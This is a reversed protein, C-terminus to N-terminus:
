KSDIQNYIKSMIALNDPPPLEKFVNTAGDFFLGVRINSRGLRNKLVILSRFKDGLIDINYGDFQTIGYREPAFLAIVILADRSTLRNDGLGSLTPLLKEVVNEGRYNFEKRETEAGQQQVNVVIYKFFKTLRKRSYTASWRSMASHLTDAGREPELLSIHDTIVIVFENDNNPIYKDRIERVKGDVNIKRMVITGNNIAYNEVYKYIGTPNSITDIVDVVKNFDSFYEKADRIKVLVDEDLDKDTLSQLDLVTYTLNHEEKLYNSILGLLFEEKSEELAFYFIKLNFNSSEKYKRYASYVFLYKTLQTKGVGSNASIVFQSGPTIGPIENNLRTFPFPINKVIGNSKDERSQEIQSIINDVDSM